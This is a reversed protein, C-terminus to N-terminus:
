ILTALMRTYALNTEYEIMKNKLANRTITM